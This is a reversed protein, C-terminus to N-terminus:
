HDSRENKSEEPFIENGVRLSEIVQERSLLKGLGKENTAVEISYPTVSSVKARVFDGIKFHEKMSRIFDRSVRAVGLVASADHILRKEGDKEAYGIALIAVADKVLTVRGVVVTGVDIGRALNGKPHVLVERTEDDFSPHGTISSYVNGNEDAHTHSGPSYEEEVTLHEGPFVVKPTPAMFFVKHIYAFLGTM